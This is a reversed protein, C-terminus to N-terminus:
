GMLWDECGTRETAREQRTQLLHISFPQCQRQQQHIILIPNTKIILIDHLEPRSVALRFTHAGRLSPPQFVVSFPRRNSRLQRNLLKPIIKHHIILTSLPPHHHSTATTTPTWRHCLFDIVNTLSIVFPHTLLFRIPKYRIVIWPFHIDCSSVGLLWGPAPSSVIIIASSIFPVFFYFMQQCLLTLAPHSNILKWNLLNSPHHKTGRIIIPNGKYGGWKTACTYYIIRTHRTIVKYLLSTETARKSYKRTGFHICNTKMKTAGGDGVLWEPYRSSLIYSVFVLCSYIHHQSCLSINPLTWNSSSILPLPSLCNFFITSYVAPYLIWQMVNSSSRGYPCCWWWSPPAPLLLLLGERLSEWNM